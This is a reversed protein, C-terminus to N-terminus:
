LAVARASKVQRAQNQQAARATFGQGPREGIPREASVRAVQEAVRAREINQQEHQQQARQQSRIDAENQKVDRLLVEGSVPIGDQGVYLVDGTTDIRSSVKNQQAEVANQARIRLLKENFEKGGDKIKQDEAARAVFFDVPESATGNKKATRGDIEANVENISKAGSLVDRQDQPTYIRENLHGKNIVVSGDKPLRIDESIGENMLMEGFEYQQKKQSLNNVVEIGDGVSGTSEAFAQRAALIDERSKGKLLARQEDSTYTVDDFTITNNKYNPKPWRKNNLDTVTLKNEKILKTNVESLVKDDSLSNIKNELEVQKQAEEAQKQTANKELGFVKDGTIKNGVKAGVVGGVVVGEPVGYAALVPTTVVNGLTIVIQIPIYAAVKAWSIEGNYKSKANQVRISTKSLERATRNVQAGVAGVAGGVAGAGMGVGIISARVALKVPTTLTIKLADIIGSLIKSNMDTQTSFFRIAKQAADKVPQMKSEGIAEGVNDIARNMYDTAVKIKSDGWLFDNKAAYRNAFEEIDAFAKSIINEAKKSSARDLQDSANSQAAGQPEIGFVILGSLLMCLKINKKM